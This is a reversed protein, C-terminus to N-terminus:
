LLPKFVKTGSNQPVEAELILTGKSNCDEMYTSLVGLEM